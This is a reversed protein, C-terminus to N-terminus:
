RVKEAASRDRTRALEELLSKVKSSWPYLGVKSEEPCMGKSSCPPLGCAMQMHAYLSGPLAPLNGIRSAYARNSALPTKEYDKTTACPTYCPHHQQDDQGGDKTAGGGRNAPRKSGAPQKGQRAASAGGDEPEVAATDIEILEGIRCARRCLPCKCTGQPNVADSQALISSAQMHALFCRKCFVHACPTILPNTANDALCIPCRPPQRGEMMDLLGQFKDM